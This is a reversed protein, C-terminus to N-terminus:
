RGSAPTATAAAASCAACGAARLARARRRLAKALADPTHAYDVVALPQAGGGFAEMRGPPARAPPSRSAAGAAAARELRAARRAGRAPERRQVRRGARSRLTGAGWSSEVHLTSAPRRPACSPCRPDLRRGPETWCSTRPRACRRARAGPRARARWSRPRLRRRRQDRARQLGPARFLRAKAAGYAELTGHYDLHDRTLNTFVATDFRVGAVRGPRARAVVVEM